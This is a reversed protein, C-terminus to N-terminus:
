AVKKLALLEDLSLQSRSAIAWLSDDVQVEAYIIGDADPTATPDPIQAQLSVPMGFVMGGVLILVILGIFQGANRAKM